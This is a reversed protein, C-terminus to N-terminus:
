TISNHALSTQVCGIALGAVIRGILLTAHNNAGAQMACGWLAFICGIQFISKLRRFSHFLTEVLRFLVNGELGIMQGALVLLALSADV